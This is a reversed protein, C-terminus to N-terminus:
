RNCAPTWRLVMRAHSPCTQAAPKVLEVFRGARRYGVFRHLPDAPEVSDLFLDAAERGLVALDDAIAFAAGDDIVAPDLQIGVDEFAGDPRDSQCALFCEERAGIAIGLM